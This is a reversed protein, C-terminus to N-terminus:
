YEMIMCHCCCRGFKRGGEERGGQGAALEAVEAFGVGYTQFHYDTLIQWNQGFIGLFCYTKAKERVPTEKPMEMIKMTSLLNQIDPSPIFNEEQMRSWLNLAAQRDFNKDSVNGSLNWTSLIGFFVTPLM